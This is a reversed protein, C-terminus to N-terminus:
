VNVSKLKIEIKETIVWINDKKTLVGSTKTIIQKTGRLPEYDKCAPNLTDTISGFVRKQAVPNDNIRLSAKTESLQQIVYIGDMYNPKLKEIVFGLPDVSTLNDSTFTNWIIEEEKITFSVTLVVNGNSTKITIEESFPGEKLTSQPAIKIKSDTIQTIDCYKSMANQYTGNNVTVNQASVQTGKQITGFQIKSPTLSAKLPLEEQNIVKFTV